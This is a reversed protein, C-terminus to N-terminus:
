RSDSGAPPSSKTKKLLYQLGLVTPTVYIIGLLAGTLMGSMAFGLAPAFDFGDLIASSTQFISVLPYLFPHAEQDRFEGLSQLLEAFPQPRPGSAIISQRSGGWPVITTVTRTSTVTVTPSYITTTATSVSTSTTTTGISTTSALNVTPSYITTSASIVKTTPVTVTPSFITSTQTLTVTTSITESFWQISQVTAVTLLVVRDWSTSTYTATVTTTTSTIETTTLSQTYTTTTTTLSTSTTYLYTTFSYTTTTLDASATNCVRMGNDALFTGGLALLIWFVTYLRRL